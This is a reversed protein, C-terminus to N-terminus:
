GGFKNIHEIRSSLILGWFIDKDSYDYSTLLWLLPYDMMLCALEETSYDKLIDEPPNLIDISDVLGIRMNEIEDM